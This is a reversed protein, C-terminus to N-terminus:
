GSPLSTGRRLFFDTYLTNHIEPTFCYVFLVIKLKYFLQVIQARQQTCTVVADTQAKTQSLGCCDFLWAGSALCM